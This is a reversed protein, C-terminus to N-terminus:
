LTNRLSLFAAKGRNPSDKIMKMPSKHPNHKEYDIIHAGLDSEDIVQFAMSWGTFARQQIAGQYFVEVSRHRPDNFITQYLEKVVDEEGELIQIFEWGCYVLMGTVGLASNKLRAQQLLEKLEPEFFGDPSMSMYFLEYM